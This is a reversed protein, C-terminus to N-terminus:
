NNRGPLYYGDISIALVANDNSLLNEVTSYITIGNPVTLPQVLGTSEVATSSLTIRSTSPLYLTNNGDNGISLNSNLVHMTGDNVKLLIYKHTFGKLVHTILYTAVGPAVPPPWLKKITYKGDAVKTGIFKATSSTGIPVAFSRLNGAIREGESFEFNDFIFYNADTVGDDYWKFSCNILNMYKAIVMSPVLTGGLDDIVANIFRSNNVILDGDAVRFLLTSDLVYNYNFTPIQTANFAPNALGFYVTSNIITSGKIQHTYVGGQDDGFYTQGGVINSELIEVSQSSPFIIPDWNSLHNTITSNTLTLSNLLYNGGFYFYGETINCNSVVLDSVQEVVLNKITSNIISVERMNTPVFGHLVTEAITLSADAYLTFEYLPDIYSGQIIISKYTATGVPTSDIRVAGTSNTISLNSVTTFIIGSINICSYFTITDAYGELTNNLIIVASTATPEFTNSGITVSTGFTNFSINVRSLNINSNFSMGNKFTNSRIDFRGNSTWVNNNFTVVANPPIFNTTFQAASTNAYTNNTIGLSGGGTFGVTLTTKTSTTGFTSNRITVIGITYNNFTLNSADLDNITATLNCGQGFNINPVNVNVISSNQFVVSTNSTTTTFGDLTSQSVICREFGNNGTTNMKFQVNRVLSNTVTWSRIRVDNWRFTTVPNVGFTTIRAISCSVMNGLGDRAYTIRDNTVDYSSAVTIRQTNFGLTPSVVSSTTLTTTSVVMTYIFGTQGSTGEIGITPQDFASGNTTSLFVYARFGSTSTNANIATVVLSATNNRSTAYTVSSTLLNVTGSPTTIAIQDVSGSTGGNLIFRGQAGLKADFEWVGNNDITNVSTAIVSITGGLADQADTIIYTTYPVLTSGSILAALAAKTISIPVSSGSGSTFEVWNANDTITNNTGGLAVNRLQYTKNNAPTPDANVTVFMGFYRRQTTIANRAALTDVQMAGGKGFNADHTPYTDGSTSPAIFGTVTVGGIIAM